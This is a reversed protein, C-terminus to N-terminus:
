GPKIDPKKRKDPKKLLLKMSLDEPRLLLEPKRLNNKERLVLLRSTPKMSSDEKNLRKKPLM